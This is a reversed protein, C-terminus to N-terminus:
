NQISVGVNTENWNSAEGSEADGGHTNRSVTVDGSDADQDVNNSINVNNNNTIVTKIDNTFTIRNDSDPGTNSISGDQKIHVSFDKVPPVVDKDHHAHDAGKGQKEAEKKAAAAGLAKGAPAVCANPSSNITSSTGNTNGASDASVPATVLALALPFGAVMGAFATAFTKIKGPSKPVQGKTSRAM